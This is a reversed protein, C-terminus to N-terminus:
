KHRSYDIFPARKTASRLPTFARKTHTACYPRGPMCPKACFFHRGRFETNEKDLPWRCERSEITSITKDSV